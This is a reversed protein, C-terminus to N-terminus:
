IHSAFRRRYPRTEARPVACCERARPLPAPERECGRKGDSPAALPRAPALAPRPPGVSLRAAVRPAHTFSLLAPTHAIRGRVHFSGPPENSPTGRLVTLVGGRPGGPKTPLSYRDRAGSFMQM